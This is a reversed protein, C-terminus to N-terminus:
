FPLLQNSRPLISITIKNYGRYFFIVSSIFERLFLLVPQLLRLQNTLSAVLRRINGPRLPLNPGRIGTFRLQRRFANLLRTFVGSLFLPCGVIFRQRCGVAVLGGLLLVSGATGEM